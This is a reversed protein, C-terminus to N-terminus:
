APLLSAPWHMEEGPAEPRRQPVWPATGLCLIWMRYQDWHKLSLGWASPCDWRGM